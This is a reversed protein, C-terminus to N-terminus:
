LKKLIPKKNLNKRVPLDSKELDDISIAELEERATLKKHKFSNGINSIVPVLLIEVSLSVLLNLLALAFLKWAYDRSPSGIPFYIDYIEEKIFKIDLANVLVGGFGFLLGTHMFLLFVVSGIFKWNRFVSERYKGGMVYVLATWIYQYASYPVLIQNYEKGIKIYNEIIVPVSPKYTAFIIVQFGIQIVCQLFMSTLVSFSSLSATPRQPDIKSKPGSATLSWGLLLVVFM